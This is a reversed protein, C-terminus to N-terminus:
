DWRKGLLLGVTIAIIILAIVAIDSNNNPDFNFDLVGLYLLIGIGAGMFILGMPASRGTFVSGLVVIFILAIPIGFIGDPVLTDIGLDIEEVIPVVM